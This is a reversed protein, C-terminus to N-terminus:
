LQQRTMCLQFLRLRLCLGGEHRYERQRLDSLELEKQVDSAESMAEVIEYERHEDRADEELDEDADNDDIDAVQVVM